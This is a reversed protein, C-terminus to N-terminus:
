RHVEAEIRRVLAAQRIHRLPLHTEHRSTQVHGELCPGNAFSNGKRYPATLYTTPSKLQLADFYTMQAYVAFGYCDYIPGVPPGVAVTAPAVFGMSLTAGTVLTVFSRLLFSRRKPVSSTISTQVSNM